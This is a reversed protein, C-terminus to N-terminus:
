TGVSPLAQVIQLFRKAAPNKCNSPWAMMLECAADDGDISIAAINGFDANDLASKPLITVGLGANVAILATHQHSHHSTSRQVFGRTRCLTLVREFIVPENKRNINLFPRNSLRSFDQGRILEVDKCHVLFHFRDNRLVLQDMDTQPHIRSGLFFYFDYGLDNASGVASLLDIDVQIDPYVASFASLCENLVGTCFPSVAIRIMGLRGEAIGLVRSLALDETDLLQQAYEMCEIGATTLSVRHPSRTLLRVGLEEELMSIQRCITPQTVGFLAAAATFSGQEVTAIFYRLQITDM